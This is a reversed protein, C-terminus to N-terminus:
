RFQKSLSSSQEQFSGIAFDSKQFAASATSEAITKGRARKVRRRPRQEVEFASGEYLGDIGKSV